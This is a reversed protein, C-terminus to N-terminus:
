NQNNSEFKIIHSDICNVDVEGNESISFDLKRCGTTFYPMFGKNILAAIHVIHPHKYRNYGTSIIAKAKVKTNEYIRANPTCVAFSTTNNSKVDKKVASAAGHHSSVILDYEQKLISPDMRWYSCDGTFLFKQERGAAHVNIELILGINNAKSGPTGKCDGQYLSIGMNNLCDVAKQKVLFLHGAEHLYVCLRQASLSAICEGNNNQLLKIDPAIWKPTRFVSWGNQNNEEFFNVGLIHDIDWHSLIIYDPKIIDNKNEDIYYDEKLVENPFVACGMDFFIKKNENIVLSIFNGQGVNYVSGRLNYVGQIDKLLDSFEYNSMVEKIQKRIYNEIAPEKKLEKESFFEIGCHIRQIPSASFLLMGQCECEKLTKGFTIKISVWRGQMRKYEADTILTKEIFFECFYPHYIDRKFIKNKDLYESGVFFNKDIELMEKSIISIQRAEEKEMPLIKGYVEAEKNKDFLSQFLYDSFEEIKIPM